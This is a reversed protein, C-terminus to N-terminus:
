CLTEVWLDREQSCARRGQAAHIKEGHSHGIPKMHTKEHAPEVAHVGQMACTHLWNNRNKDM